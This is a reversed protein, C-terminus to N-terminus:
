WNWLGLIKLLSVKSAWGNVTNGRLRHGHGFAQAHSCAHPCAFLNCNGHLNLLACATASLSCVGSHSHISSFTSGLRWGSCRSHVPPEVCRAHCEMCPHSCALHFPPGCVRHLGAQLTPGSRQSSTHGHACLAGMVEGKGAGHVRGAAKSSMQQQYLKLSQPQFHRYVRRCHHALPHPYPLCPSTARPGPLPSSEAWPGAAMTVPAGAAM